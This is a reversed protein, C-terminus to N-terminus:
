ADELTQIEGMNVREAANVSFGLLSPNMKQMKKKRSKRKGAADQYASSDDQSLQGLPLQTNFPYTNGRVATGADHVGWM